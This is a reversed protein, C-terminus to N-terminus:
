MCVGFAWSISVLFVCLIETPFGYILSTWAGLANRARFRPTRTASHRFLLRATEAQARMWAFNFDTCQFPQQNFLHYANTKNRCEGLYNSCSVRGAHTIFCIVFSNIFEHIWTQMSCLGELSDSLRESQSSTGGRQVSYQLLQIWDM